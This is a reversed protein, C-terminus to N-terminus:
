PRSRFDQDDGARQAGARVIRPKGREGGLFQREGLGLHRADRKRIIRQRQEVGVQPRSAAQRAVRDLELAHELACWPTNMALGSYLAETVGSRLFAM